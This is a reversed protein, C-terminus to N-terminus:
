LPEIKLANEALYIQASKNRLADPLDENVQYQGAISLLEADLHQCFIRADTDGNVGALARGRLTGYVHIHRHALIEAGHSVTSLVILDGQLAVVQQGSRIPQTIIKTMSPASVEAPEPETSSKPRLPKTDTLIGLNVSLATEHQLPNGGRVAVPILGYRRMLGVLESLDVSKDDDDAQEDQVAHLDIIVPANQFFGPAKSIKDALQEAIKENDHDLLHLVMLTLLNGKFELAPAGYTPSLSPM